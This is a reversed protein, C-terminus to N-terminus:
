GPKSDLPTPLSRLFGAKGVLWYTEEFGKGQFLSSLPQAFRRLHLALGSAHSEWLQCSLLRSGPTLRDPDGM